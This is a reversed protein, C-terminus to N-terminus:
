ARVMQYGGAKRVEEEADRDVGLLGIGSCVRNTGKNKAMDLERLSPEFAVEETIAM